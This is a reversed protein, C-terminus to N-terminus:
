GTAPPSGLAAELPVGEAAARGLRQLADFQVDSLNAPREAVAEQMLALLKEGADVFRRGLTQVTQLEARLDPSGGSELTRRLYRHALDNRAEILADVEARLPEPIDNPLLRQLEKASAREFRHRYSAFQKQLASHVKQRTDLLRTPSKVPSRLITLGALRYEFAQVAWM